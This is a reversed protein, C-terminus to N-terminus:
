SEKKGLRRMIQKHGHEVPHQHQAGCIDELAENWHEQGSLIKIEIRLFFVPVDIEKPTLFRVADKETTIIFDADRRFSREMFRDIEKQTFNHHDSFTRHFIIEAGHQELLSEFSQPVAIGSIATIFKGNMYSLPEREGTFLNELEVAEHRCEVIGATKNYKKIRKLLAESSPEKCKTIIILQARKLHRPPERLTGRPLLAETGFPANQDILVIDYKHRLKLYQMGDDLVFLDTGLHKLAFRASKVRDKDVLVSVGPLNKALMYPEDGSYPPKLYLKQHDSVVKPMLDYGEDRPVGDWSQPKALAKSKYGRSLIAVQRGRNNLEGALKEVVPTKGTGGVTLNGVSVVMTAFDAQEKRGSLFSWVRVKAICWFLLSFLGLIRRTIFALASRNRGSIVDAGWKELDDSSSAM